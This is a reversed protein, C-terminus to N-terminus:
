RKFNSACHHPRHAPAKCRLAESICCFQFCFLLRWERCGCFTCHHPQTRALRKLRSPMSGAVSFPGQHARARFAAFALDIFIAMNHGVDPPSLTGIMYPLPNAPLADFEVLLYHSGRCPCSSLAALARSRRPWFQLEDRDQMRVRSPWADCFTRLVATRACLPVPHPHM